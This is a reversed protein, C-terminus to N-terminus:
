PVFDQFECFKCEVTDRYLQVDNYLDTISIAISDEAEVYYCSNIM